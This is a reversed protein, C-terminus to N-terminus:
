FEVEFERNKRSHELVAFKRATNVGQEKPAIKSLQKIKSPVYNEIEVQNWNVELEPELGITENRNAKNVASMDQQLNCTVRHLLLQSYSAQHLKCGRIKFDQLRYSIGTIKGQEVRLKPDIQLRQLRALFVSLSPRDRSALDIGSQIKIAHTVVPRETRAGMRYEEVERMMRQVQGTTSAKHKRQESDAVITLNHEIEQQRLINELKKKDYSDVVRKGEFDIANILIHFHDHEHARDHKPDVRGHRVVLYQNNDYGLGDIVAIAIEEITKSNLQGDNPSFGISIHKVTKKVSPRQSACTDLEWTMTNRDHGALNTDVIQPTKSPDLLYNVLGRFDSGTNINGIM